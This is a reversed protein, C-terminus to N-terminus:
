LKKDGLIHKQIQLLDLVSIKNDGSTDAALLKEGTLKKDGLIHKQIQLLDLASIKGDGSTDGNVSLTYKKIENSTTIEIKHGTGILDTDKLEKNESNTIVIKTAGSTSLINKLTSAKTGNKIKSIFNDVKNLGSQSIIDDVSLKIDVKKITLIYKKEELVENTVTITIQTEEDELKYEGTGSISSASSSASANVIIKNLELPVNVEYDTIDEDFSPSLQYNQVQLSKLNNNTDGSKPLSTYKPLGNYIPIEFIFTQNLVNAKKYSNYTQNGETAPAQINTMYQHTFKNFKADPGVNFKQYYLTGQGKTVYGNALFDSGEIIATEINNWVEGNRNILKAAHALGRTVASYKVGNITVEYAGINFFNYYGSYKKGEWTFEGGNTSDSGNASVELRIRSAIHVPSIKNTKGANFMPITYKDESLKGSGFISKILSPYIEELSSDYDLKEFMFIREETLWNRPDMYFAIVGNNVKFWSKGEAPKNSIRYNDNETQMYCLGQESNVAVSFNLNTKGAKFIWNPYKKHLYTLYPIYDDTFGEKKLKDAYEEDNAIINKKEIVYNKSIWGTSGNYYSIKYWDGSSSIINVNAGLSLREIVGYNTGAGKRVAVNNGSVRATWDSINIGNFTNDIFTVYKSCVYGIKEKYNVKYWKYECGSGEYLIKDIVKISTGKNVTSIPSNNTGAGTRIRVSSDNIIADFEEASAHNPILLLFAFIITLCVNKKM